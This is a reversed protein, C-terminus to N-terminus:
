PLLYSEVQGYITHTAPDSSILVLGEEEGRVPLLDITISVEEVVEDSDPPTVEFRVTIERAGAGGSNAISFPVAYSDEQREVQEVEVAVEFRATTEAPRNFHEIIAIGALACVVLVSIAFTSREAITWGRQQGSGPEDDTTSASNDTMAEGVEDSATM